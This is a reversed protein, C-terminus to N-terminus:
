KSSEFRLFSGVSAFYLAPIAGDETRIVTVKQIKCIGVRPTCSIAGVREFFRLDVSDVVDTSM